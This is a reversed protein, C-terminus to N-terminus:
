LGPLDRQTAAAGALHEVCFRRFWELRIAKEIEVYFLPGEGTPVRERADPAARRSAEKQRQKQM